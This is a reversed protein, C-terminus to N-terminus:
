VFMADSFRNLKGGRGGPLGGYISTGLIRINNNDWTLKKVGTGGHSM